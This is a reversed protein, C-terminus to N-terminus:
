LYLFLFHSHLPYIQPHDTDLHYNFDRFLMFNGPSQLYSSNFAQSFNYPVRFDLSQIYSDTFIIVFLSGLPIILGAIHERPNFWSHMTHSFGPTNWSLFFLFAIHSFYFFHGEFKALQLYQILKGLHTETSHILSIPWQFSDPLYSPWLHTFTSMLNFFELDKSTLPLTIFPIPKYFLKNWVKAYIHTHTYICM